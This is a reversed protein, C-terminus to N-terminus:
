VLISSNETKKNIDKWVFFNSEADSSVLYGYMTMILDTEPCSHGVLYAQDDKNDLTITLITEELEKM